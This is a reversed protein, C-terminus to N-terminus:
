EHDAGATPENQAPPTSATPKQQATNRGTAGDVQRRLEAQFGPDRKWRSVTYPHVGLEAAVAVVSRGALLLRAATM